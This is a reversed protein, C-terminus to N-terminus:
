GSKLGFLKAANEGLIAMKDEDSIPTGMVHDVPHQEWPIPHDTGLM